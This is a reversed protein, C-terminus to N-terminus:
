SGRPCRQHRRHGQCASVGEFWASSAREYQLRSRSGTGTTTRDHDRRGPAPRDAAVTAAHFGQDTGRQGRHKRPHRNGDPTRLDGSAGVSSSFLDLVSRGPRPGAPGAGRRLARRTFTPGSVRRAGKKRRRDGFGVTAILPRHRCTPDMSPSMGCLDLHRSGALSDIPLVSSDRTRIGAGTVGPQSQHWPVEAPSADPSSRGVHSPSLSLRDGIFAPM